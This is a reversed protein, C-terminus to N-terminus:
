AYACKEDAREGSIASKKVDKVATGETLEKWTNYKRSAHDQYCVGQPYCESLHAEM